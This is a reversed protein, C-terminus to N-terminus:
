KGGAGGDATAVGGKGVGYDLVRGEAGPLLEGDDGLFDRWTYRPRWGLVRAAKACSIGAADPRHLPGRVPVADGYAAKVAAALDRGGINDEAAIYVVEHGAVGGAHAAQVIARALDAIIIYSWMGAQPLSRDRILPGLNRAVNGADQCWSPRITVISLPAPLPAAAGADRAAVAAHAAVRRIAADCLQEGFHKSLAYPDHPAVVETEDTPCFTPVSGPVSPAGGVGGLRRDAAFPVSTAPFHFGPVTESSLNVLRPVGLLVAAEVVNFTSRLNNTFVDVPVNHSPEPIAATHVIADPRYRAVTSMMVNGDLLDGSIYVPPFPDNAAPPCDFSGRPLDVGIVEDGAARFAAVVHRGVKGQSGTVLVRM